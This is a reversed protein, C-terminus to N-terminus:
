RFPNDRLAFFCIRIGIDRFDKLTQIKPADPLFIQREGRIQEPFDKNEILSVHLTAYSLFISEEL